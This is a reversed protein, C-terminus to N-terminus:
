SADAQGTLVSGRTQGPLDTDPVTPREIALWIRGFEATFVLREADYPDVALTVFLPGGPATSMRQRPDPRGAPEQVATVLVKDLLRNTTHSTSGDVTDAVASPLVVNDGDVEIVSQSLTFPDFSAFVAVTQGPELLGGVARQADTEITVEIMGEPVELGTDRSALEAQEVFRGAVLQEGPLLDVATVRGAVAQLSDLAGDARVKVPVQEVRVQDAVREAPTGSPIPVDVVYVETLQEGALARREATTVYAVLAVTGAVALLAAVALGVIRRTM